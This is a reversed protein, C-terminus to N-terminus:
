RAGNLCRKLADRAALGSHWAIDAISQGQYQVEFSWNDEMGAMLADISPVAFAIMPRATAGVTMFVANLTAPAENGQKLTVLVKQGAQLKPFQHDDMLPAFALLAGRYDGGPGFLTVTMGEKFSDEGGVQPERKARLFTAACFEGAKAQSNAQMFEWWGALIKERYQRAEEKNLELIRKPDLQKQSKDMVSGLVDFAEAPAPAAGQCPAAVLAALMGTAWLLKGLM